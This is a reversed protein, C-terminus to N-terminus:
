LRALLAMVVPLLSASVYVNLHNRARGSGNFNTARDDDYALKRETLYTHPRPSVTSM